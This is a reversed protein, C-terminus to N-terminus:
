NGKKIIMKLEEVEKELRDIMTQQEQVAKVLPVVFEAYRITYLESPNEPKTYGSFDYNASKAAQEVEQALFGSRKIKDAAFKGPFSPTEKNGTISTIAKSSIHYTVPRLKLIFPLGAVDEVINNKIRADSYVGWNVHGGISVMSTNGILVQNSSGHLLDDNGIGITNSVNPAFSITGSNAGIAINNSGGTNNVLAHFGVATNDSGTTNNYLSAIGCATNENGTWNTYLTAVGMATNYNGSVNSEMSQYGYATNSIGNVNAYLSLDGSATNFSGTTNLYLAQVGTATNSNGTTNSYLTYVGHGTNHIGTTNAYLSQYGNATNANGSTNSNGASSGIFTNLRGKAVGSSTDNVRGANLGIFVNSEHDSHIWVLSKGSSSRLLILPNSNAQGSYADVMLQTSNSSGKIHLKAAPAAIGIGTNQGM